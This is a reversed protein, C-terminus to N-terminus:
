SLSHHHHQSFLLRFLVAWVPEGAVAGWGWAGGREWQAGAGGLEGVADGWCNEGRRWLILKERVYPFKGM